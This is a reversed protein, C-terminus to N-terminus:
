ICFHIANKCAGGNKTLKWQASMDGRHHVNLRKYENNITTADIEFTELENYLDKFVRINEKTERSIIMCLQFCLNEEVVEQSASAENNESYNTNNSM